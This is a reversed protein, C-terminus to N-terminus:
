QGGIEGPPQRMGATIERMAAPIADTVDRALLGNGLRVAARDGARGHLWAGMWAAATAEVGAALLAGIVGTLVDGCGATAMAPNGTDSIFLEGTPGCVLTPSGKLLVTAGVKARAENAAGLLDAEIEERPKGLIRGLEGAHPTLLDLKAHLSVHDIARLGDADIVCPIAPRSEFFAQLFGDAAGLGPGIAVADTRNALEIAESAATPCLVGNETQPLPRLVVELLKGALIDIAGSPAALVVYGAGTRMAAEAALCAAGLMGRSGALVLLRGVSGKHCDAPRGPWRDRLDGEEIRYRRPFSPAGRKPIGIDAVEIEGALSRGPHMLHGVKLHALAVTLDARVYEGGARGTDGEVGSPGDVALVPRGSQRIAGIAAEAAGRPAGRLGTGFVADIVLDAAALEEELSPLEHDAALIPVGSKKARHLNVEANGSVEEEPPIMWVRAELGQERLLRAVVLGDGGNNGKGVIALVRHAEPYSRAVSNAIARGASEMLTLSPVGEDDIAWRDLAQMEQATLIPQAM